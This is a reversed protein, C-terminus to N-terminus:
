RDAQPSELPEELLASFPNNLVSFPNNQLLHCANLAAATTATATPAPPHQTLANRFVQKFMYM